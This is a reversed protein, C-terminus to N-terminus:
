RSPQFFMVNLNTRLHRGKVIIGTLVIQIAAEM